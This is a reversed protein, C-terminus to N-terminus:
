HSRKKIYGGGSVKERRSEIEKCRERERAM